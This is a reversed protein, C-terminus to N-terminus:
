LSFIAKLTYSVLAVALASAAWIGFFWALRRPLSKEGETNPMAAM